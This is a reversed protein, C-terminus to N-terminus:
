QPAYNRKWMTGGPLLDSRFKVDPRIDYAQQLVMMPFFDTASGNDGVTANKPLSTLKETCYKQASNENQKWPSIWYVLENRYPWRTKELGGVHGSLIKPLALYCLPGLIVSITAMVVVARRWAIGREAMADMGVTAALAILGLTPLIFTFKDPVPYRIFFAVHIVTIAGIAAAIGSGLRRRFNWWGIIALPLLFNLFNLGSLCINVKLLEHHVGLTLIKDGYMGVLANRLAYLFDTREWLWIMQGLWLSAGASWFILGDALSWLSLKKKWVLVIAVVFYVPYALVAFGHVALELGALLALLCLKWSSPRRILWAMTVLEGFFIALSWTYVEAVEALWWPTHCVGLMAAGLIPIWRCGTLFNGLLFFNGLAIAMGLSSLLNLAYVLNTKGALLLIGRGASIYLPHARALGQSTTWDGALVRWQYEGSDQWGVTRQAFAAYFIFSILVIILYCFAIGGASKRSKNLNEMM